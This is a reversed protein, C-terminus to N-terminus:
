PAYAQEFEMTLETWAGGGPSLSYRKCAYWGMQGSPPKWEFPQGKRERIFDLVPQVDKEYGSRKASWKQTENNLGNPIDQSYGDGFKSSFMAFEGSGSTGVEVKWTFVAM